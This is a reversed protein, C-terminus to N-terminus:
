EEEFIGDGERERDQAPEVHITVDVGHVLVELEAEIRDCIDHAAEVTMTGPVKLTIEIFSQHSARRTKLDHYQVPVVERRVARFLHEHIQELEEDPFAADMLGDIAGRFIGVGIWAIHVAVATAFLPDLVWWGTTWALGLGIWGGLTTVVDALNHRGDAELAPSKTERGARILGLALAANFVTAATSLGLGWGLDPIASAATFRTAAELGVGLAAALILVAQFLAAFYEVKGHGYQHNADAPRRSFSVALLLATATLLDLSSEAADAMLVASGTLEWAFLKIVLVLASVGFSIRSWRKAQEAHVAASGDM